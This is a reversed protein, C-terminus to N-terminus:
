IVMAPMSGMASALSNPCVADHLEVQLVGFRFVAAPCLVNGAPAHVLDLVGIEERESGYPDIKGASLACRSLM